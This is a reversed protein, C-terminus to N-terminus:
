AVTGATEFTLTDRVGLSVEAGADYVIPKVVDEDPASVEPVEV